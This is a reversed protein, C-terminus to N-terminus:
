FRAKLGHSKLSMRYILGLITNIFPQLQLSLHIEDFSYVLRSIIQYIYQM